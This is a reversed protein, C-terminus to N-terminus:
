KLKKTWDDYFKCLADMDSASQLAPLDKQMATMAQQYKQPDKQAATVIAQQFAQAKTQAEEVTCAAHALGVSGLFVALCLFFTKKM